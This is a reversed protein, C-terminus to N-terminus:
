LITTLFTSLHNLSLSWYSTTTVHWGIFAGGHGLGASSPAPPTHPPRPVHMLAVSALPAYLASAVVPVHVHLAPYPSTPHSSANVESDDPTLFSPSVPM